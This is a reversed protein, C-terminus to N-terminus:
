GREKAVLNMIYASSGLEFRRILPDIAPFGASYLIPHKKIVVKDGFTRRAIEKAPLPTTVEIAVFPHNIVKNYLFYCRGTRFENPLLKYEKNLERAIEHEFYKRFDFKEKLFDEHFRPTMGSFAMVDAGIGLGKARQVFSIEEGNSPMLIFAFGLYRAMDSARLGYEQLLDGITKNAPYLSPLLKSPVESLKTAMFDFYGGRMITLPVKIDGNVILVDNNEREERLLKEDLAQRYPVLQEPVKYREPLVKLELEIM